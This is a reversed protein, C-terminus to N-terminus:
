NKTLTKFERYKKIFDIKNKAHIKEYMKQVSRKITSESVSMEQAIKNYNKRLILSEAILIENDTFDSYTAVPTERINRFNQLKDEYLISMLVFVFVTGFIELSITLGNKFGSQYASAVSLILLSGLIIIKIQKKNKFFNGKALFVIGLIFLLFGFLAGSFFIYFLGWFICLFGFVSFCTPKFILYIFLFVTIISPIFLYEGIEFFNFYVILLAFCMLSFIILVRWMSKDFFDM